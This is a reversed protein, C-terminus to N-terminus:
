SLEKKLEEFQEKTIEGRAYRERVIDFANSKTGSSHKTLKKIGWIVLAIITGWFIVMFAVMVLGLGWGSSHGWWMM